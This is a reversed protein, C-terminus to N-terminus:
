CLPSNICTYHPIMVYNDCNKMYIILMKTSHSFSSEPFCLNSIPFFYNSIPFLFQFFIFSSHIHFICFVWLLFLHMSSVHTMREFTYQDGFTHWGCTPETEISSAAWHMSQSPPAHQPPPSISSFISSTAPSAGWFSLDSAHGTSGSRHSLSDIM